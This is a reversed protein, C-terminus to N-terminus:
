LPLSALAEDLDPHHFDFGAGMLRAPAVRQGSLLADAVMERGFLARLATLPTPILAPRRVRDALAETMRANTVPHPGVLNVPGTLESELLFALARVYDAVHIWSLFQRGSGIRGGLGLKYALLQKGLFGGEAALVHGTRLHVVPVPSHAAAREWDVVLRALFGVGAPSQEDVVAPGTDGYFGIASASLFRQCRGDPVLHHVLTITTSIRSHRLEEKRPESWRADAIGSGAFNLTADVDSLGPGDIRGESPEWRREDPRGAERRVLRVVSHGEAVLHNAAATGLLGSAGAIAIRMM